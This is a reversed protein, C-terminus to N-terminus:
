YLTFNEFSRILIDDITVNFAKLREEIEQNRLNQVKNKDDSQKFQM